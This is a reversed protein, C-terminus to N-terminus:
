WTIRRVRWSAGDAPPRSASSPAHSRRATPSCCRSTSSAPPARPVPARADIDLLLVERGDEPPALAIRGDARDRARLGLLEQWFSLARDRDAVRLAVPGLM